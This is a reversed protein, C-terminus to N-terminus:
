RIKLVHKTFLVSGLIIFFLILLLLFTTLVKYINESHTKCLTKIKCTKKDINVIDIDLIHSSRCNPCNFRKKKGKWNVICNLHFEKNCKDCVWLDNVSNQRSSGQSELDVSVFDESNENSSSNNCSNSVPSLILRLENIHELCIPCVDRDTNYTVLESSLLTEDM